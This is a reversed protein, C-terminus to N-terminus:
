IGFQPDCEVLLHVHDPMIEMELLESATEAYVEAIIEKLRVDVKSV